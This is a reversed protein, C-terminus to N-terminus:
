LHIVVENAVVEFTVDKNSIFEVETKCDVVHVQVQGAKPVMFKELTLSQPAAERDIHFEQKGQCEDLVTSGNIAVRTNAPFVNGQLLLRWTVTEMCDLGECTIADPAPSVQPAAAKKNSKDKSCASAVLMLATLTVMKFNKM